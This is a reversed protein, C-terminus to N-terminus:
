LTVGGQEMAERHDRYPDRRVLTVRAFEEAEDRDQEDLECYEFLQCRVCDETPTKFLPLRGERMENMVLAEAQVRRAQTVREQPSRYVEERHFLPQPQVKSVDGLVKIGRESAQQELDAVTVGRPATSYGLADLYHQKTPKNCAEGAANTPRDDPMAKRLANFVLGEINDKKKLLGKHVLVEKAVWLYSGAQDNINYFSWNKPFSRRTKHDVVKYVKEILDYVVLDWTGAYVVLTRGEDYPHPVDIQFPQESHIVQWHKDQGFEELYGTLMAHGLTRGDVIEVDDLEGGETYIRRVQGDLAADFADHVDSAKGRKKGEPYRVELAKHIATGFWAWTPERRSRLGRVWTADWLWPCRKFDNRESTRLIPITEM